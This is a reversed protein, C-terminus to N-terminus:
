GRDRPLFAATGLRGCGAVPLYSGACGESFNGPRSIVAQVAEAFAGPRSIVAEHWGCLLFETYIGEVRVHPLFLAVNEGLHTAPLSIPLFFPSIEGLLAVLPVNPLRFFLIEGSHVTFATNPLFFASNRGSPCSSPCKPSQLVTNRGFSRCFSHKPSLLTSNRGSPRISPCQPSPLVTNRGFSRCFSHKPSFFAFNRGSPCSSPCKPSPYATKSGSPRNPCPKSPSRPQTFPCFSNHASNFTPFLLKRAFSNDKRKSFSAGPVFLCSRTHSYVHTFLIFPVFSM